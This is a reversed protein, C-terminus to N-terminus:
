GYNDLRVITKLPLIRDSSNRIVDDISTDLVPLKKGQPWIDALPVLAFLRSSLRPHPVTLEPTDIVASGYLLVDLDIRRPAWRTAPRVRGAAREVELCRHLLATADLKTRVGVVANLFEPQPREDPVHAETSYVSSVAEIRIHPEQSILHLARLLHRIRPELNSGLGIYAFEELRSTTEQGSGRTRM